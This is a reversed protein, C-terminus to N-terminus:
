RARVEGDDAQNRLKQRYESPTGGFGDRFATSFNQSSSYGLHTAVDAISADTLTLIQRAIQLREARLWGFATTGYQQRFAENLKRESTGLQAALEAAPPPAAIKDLLLAKAAKVLVAGPLRLNLSLDEREDLHRNNPRQLCISIRAAIEQENAYSKVIYDVAGLLLGELRNIQDGVASLFVVPIDRTHPNAKLLRCTGLGDLVPMRMDLLILDFNSMLAKNYGDSGNFAVAVDWGHRSAIDTLVRLDALSDDILLLRAPAAKSM